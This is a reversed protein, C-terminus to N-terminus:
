GATLAHPTVAWWELLIAEAEDPACVRVPLGLAACVSAAVCEGPQGTRGLADSWAPYTGGEQYDLGGGGATHESRAVTVAPGSTLHQGIVLAGSLGRGRVADQQERLASELPTAGTFVLLVTEGKGDLRALAQAVTEAHEPPAAVLWRHGGARGAYLALTSAYLDSWVSVLRM